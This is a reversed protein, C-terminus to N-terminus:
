AMVPAQFQFLQLTFHERKKTLHRSKPPDVPPRESLRVEFNAMSTPDVVLYKRFAKYGVDRVRCRIDDNTFLRGLVHTPHKIENVSSKADLIKLRTEGDLNVVYHSYVWSLRQRQMNEDNSTLCKIAADFGLQHNQAEASVPHYSTLFIKGEGHEASRDANKRGELLLKAKEVKVVPAELKAILKSSPTSASSRCRATTSRTSTTADVRGPDQRAPLRDGDRRARRRARLHARVGQLVAEEVLDTLEDIIFSGQWPTRTRALGWERNIILQIAVARRV